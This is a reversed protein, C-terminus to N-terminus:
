DARLRHSARAADASRGGGAGGRGGGLGPAHASCTGPSASGMPWVSSLPWTRSSGSGRSSRVSRSPTLDCRRAILAPYLGARKVIKFIRSFDREYCAKIMEADNLIRAPLDQPPESKPM